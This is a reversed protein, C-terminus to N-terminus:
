GNHDPPPTEENHFALPLNIIDHQFLCCHTAPLVLGPKAAFIFEKLNEKKSGEAKEEAMDTLSVTATKKIVEKVPFIYVTTILLLLITLLSKM